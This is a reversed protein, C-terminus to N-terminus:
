RSCRAPRAPLRRVPAGPARARRVACAGEETAGVGDTTVGPACKRCATIAEAASRWEARPCPAALGTAKLFYGPEPVCATMSSQGTAGQTTM